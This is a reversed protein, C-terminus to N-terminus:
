YICGLQQQRGRFKFIKKFFIVTLCLTLFRNFMTNRVSVEPVKPPPKRIVKDELVREKILACSVDLAGLLANPKFSIPQADPSLLELTHYAPNLHYQSCLDVLLDM